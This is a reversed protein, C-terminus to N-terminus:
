ANENQSRHLDAAISRVVADAAIMQGTTTRAWVVMGAFDFDVKEGADELKHGFWDTVTWHEYVERDDPEIDDIMCAAPATSAERYTGPEDDNECIWKEEHLEWGAERATSEFDQIQCALDSAQECLDVLDRLAMSKTGKDAYGTTVPNHGILGYANSLTNVLSSVCHLVEKGVMRAAVSEISVEHETHQSETM